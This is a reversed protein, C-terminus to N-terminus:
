SKAVPTLPTQEDENESNINSPIVIVTEEIVSTNNEESCALPLNNTETAAETENTAEQEDDKIM